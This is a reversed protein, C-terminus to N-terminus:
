LMRISGSRTPWMIALGKRGLEGDEEDLQEVFCPSMKFDKYFVERDTTQQSKQHAIEEEDDDNEDVEQFDAAIESSPREMSEYWNSYEQSHVNGDDASSLNYIDALERTEDTFRFKKKEDAAKRM